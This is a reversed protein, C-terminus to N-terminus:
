LLFVAYGYRLSFFVRKSWEAQCFLEPSNWARGLYQPIYHMVDKQDLKLTRFFIYPPRWTREWAGKHQLFLSLQFAPCFNRKPHLIMTVAAKSSETWMDALTLKQLSQHVYLWELSQSSLQPHETDTVVCSNVGTSLFLFNDQPVAAGLTSLLFLQLKEKKRTMLLLIEM